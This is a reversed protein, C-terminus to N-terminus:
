RLMIMQLKLTSVGIAFTISIAVLNISPMVELVCNWSAGVDRLIEQIKIRSKTANLVMTQLM